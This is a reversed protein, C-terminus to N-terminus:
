KTRRSRKICSPFDPYHKCVCERIGEPNPAWNAYSLAARAKARTDIPFKYKGTEKPYDGYPGCYVMTETKQILTNGLANGSAALINSLTWIALAVFTLFGAHYKM